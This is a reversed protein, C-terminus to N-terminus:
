DGDFPQHSGILDENMLRHALSRGSGALRTLYREVEGARHRASAIAQAPSIPDFQVTDGPRRQALTDLDASVVTAIKPYGGTTQHDAFLLTPVGDGAVQISGRVIPESPISLAGSLGLRPGDLRVGMRDFASTFSYTATEFAAIAAPEFRHDQPGMVVRPSVPGLPPRPVPGVRRREDRPEAVVLVQGPQLQGGGLGSQSHTATHGLWVPADLAGAFALYTWSGADGSRISLRDGPRVHLVAWSDISGSRHSVAFDGGVVAVTVTGEVCELTLGGLSVEVATASADNGIVVNAAAHALRDMPGSAPVGFRMAGFRGRDQFSVHPGVQIVRFKASSM